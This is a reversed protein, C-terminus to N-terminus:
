VGREGSRLSLSYEAHGLVESLAEDGYMARDIDRCLHEIRVGVSFPKATMEYGLSNMEAFTDRASHGAALIVAGCRIREGNVCVTDGKISSVKSDYRIEGGLAAIMKHFNEVVLTLVDTGVHPKARTLITEPAGADVFARLVSRVYPDNIRTTLKGDSFTGAGGAGFQVNCETDLVGDETFRRLAEIRKRCSSGRELVIPRFGYKALYLSAFMGAPGFGVVVPRETMKVAGADFSVSPESAAKIGLSALRREDVDGSVEAETMVSCVFTINGKKRADVSRKYISSRVVSANPIVGSIKREALSIIEGDDATIPVRINEVLFQKIQTM